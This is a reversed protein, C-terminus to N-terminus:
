SCANIGQEGAAQSQGAVMANDGTWATMSTVSMHVMLCLTHSCLKSGKGQTAHLKCNM